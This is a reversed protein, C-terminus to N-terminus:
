IEVLEDEYEDTILEEKSLYTSECFEGFDNKWTYVAQIGNVTSKNQYVKTVTYDFSMGFFRSGKKLKNLTSQKM